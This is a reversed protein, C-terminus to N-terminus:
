SLNRPKTQLSLINGAPDKFWAVGFDDARYIDGKRVLGPMDYHEFSVGKGKLQEVTTELDDVDWVAATGKNTGAFESRYVNLTTNGSRYTVVTGPEEHVRRLGLTKDYFTTAKDLDKVPLMVHVNASGLM